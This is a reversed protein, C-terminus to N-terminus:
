GVVSGKTRDLGSDASDDMQAGMSGGRFMGKMSVVIAGAPKVDGTGVDGLGKARGGSGKARIRTTVSGLNFLTRETSSTGHGHETSADVRVHSAKKTSPFTVSHKFVEKDSGLREHLADRRAHKGMAGEAVVRSAM